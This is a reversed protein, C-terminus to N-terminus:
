VPSDIQTRYEQFIRLIAHGIGFAPESESCLYISQKVSEDLIPELKFQSLNM